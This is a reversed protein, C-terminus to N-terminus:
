LEFQALEDLMASRRPYRQQWDQILQQAQLDGLPYRVMERLLDVIERYHKRPGTSTMAQDAYQAYKHIIKAAYQNKLMPGYKQLGAIGKEALIAQLLEPKLDEYAYLPALRAPDAQSQLAQFLKTRQAPWTAPSFTAKYAKFDALDAVHYKTVLRWLEQRYNATDQQQQYIKALRRSDEVVVGPLDRNVRKGEQLLSIAQAVRQKRLCFNVYDNRVASYQPYRRYLAELVTDDAQMATLTHARYLVWQTLDWDTADSSAEFRQIMKATLALRAEFFEQESFGQGFLLTRVDEEIANLPRQIQTALWTFIQRKVPPLSQKIVRRWLESGNILIEMIEGASDDIDLTDLKLYLHSLVAFAVDDQHEVVLTELDDALYNQIEAEFFEADQYDIFGSRDAYSACIDDIEAKEEAVSTTSSTMFKKFQTMLTRDSALTRSLFERLQDPTAQAVLQQAQASQNPSSTPTADNAAEAAMLVAAMHKCSKGQAAYPCDCAMEMVSDNWLTIMVDYRQSGRVEATIQTATQRLNQVAGDLYYGYGRDLIQPEFLDVLDDEM